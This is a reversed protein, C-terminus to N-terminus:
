QIITDGSLDYSELFSFVPTNPSTEETLHQTSELFIKFIDLVCKEYIDHKHNVYQVVAYRGSITYLYIGDSPHHHQHIDHDGLKSFFGIHFLMNSLTWEFAWELGDHLYEDFLEADNGCSFYRQALAWIDFGIWDAQTKTYLLGLFLNVDWDSYGLPKSINFYQLINEPQESFADTVNPISIRHEAKIHSLSTGLSTIHRCELPFDMLLPRCMAENEKRFIKTPRYSSAAIITIAHPPGRFVCFCPTIEDPQHRDALYYFDTYAVGAAREYRRVVRYGTLGNHLNPIEEFSVIM